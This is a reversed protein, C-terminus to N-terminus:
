ARGGEAAGEPVGEVIVLTPTRIVRNLRIGGAAFLEAFEEETRAHGGFLVLQKIDMVKGIDYADGPLPVAELVVIRSHPAMARGVVEVIRRARTDDWDHLITKLLYADAGPPVREFFDGGVTEARDAVGAKTLEERARGIVHPLDFLTARINPYRALLEATFAGNGSGVDVLTELSGWDYAPLLTRVMLVHLTQVSRDFRACEEPFDVFYDYYEAGHVHEFGTRGTRISHATHAWAQVDDPMLPFTGQLSHPHDSRMFEAMPTLAFVGPEVEAFIEKVSLARLVREVAGSHLGLAAAVDTARRPGEAFEDAIKFDGVVRVAFPVIYDAMEALRRMDALPASM